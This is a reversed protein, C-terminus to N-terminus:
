SRLTNSTQRSLPKLLRLWKLLCNLFVVPTGGDTYLFRNLPNLYIKVSTLTLHTLINVNLQLSKRGFIPIEGERLKGHMLIVADTTSM